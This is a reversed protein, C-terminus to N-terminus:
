AVTGGHLYMRGGGGAGSGGEGSMAGDEDEGEVACACACVCAAASVHAAAHSARPGPGEGGAEVLTWCWGEALGRADGWGEAAGGGEREPGASHASSARDHRAAPPPPPASRSLVWCDGLLSGANRGGFVVVRWGALAAGAGGGGEEGGGGGAGGGGEEAAQRADCPVPPCPRPPPPVAVATHRYRGPFAAHPCPSGTTTTGAVSPTLRLWGRSQPSPAPSDPPSPPATLPLLWVDDLPQDPSTRGGLLLLAATGAASMFLTRPPWPAVRPGAPQRQASTRTAPRVSGQLSLTCCRDALCDTSHGARSSGAMHGAGSRAEGGLRVLTHGQRPQPAPAAPLPLQSWRQCAADLVLVDSRRAHAGAGGYGGVQWM